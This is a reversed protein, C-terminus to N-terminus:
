LEKHVTVVTDTTAADTASSSSSGNGDHGYNKGACRKSIQQCLVPAVGAPGLLTDAQLAALVEEEHEELLIGCFTTLHKSHLEREHEPPWTVGTVTGEGKYQVWHVQQEQDQSGTANRPVLTYKDMEHCLDELLEVARLESLRYEIVKGYRKGDKDLRHRM